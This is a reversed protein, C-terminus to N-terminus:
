ASRVYIAVIGGIGALVVVAIIVAGVSLGVSTAAVGIM